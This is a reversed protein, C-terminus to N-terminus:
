WVMYQIANVNNKETIHLFDRDAKAILHATTDKEKYNQTKIYLEKDKRHRNSRYAWNGSFENTTDCGIM